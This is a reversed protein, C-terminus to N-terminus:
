YRPAYRDSLAPAYKAHMMGADNGYTNAVDLSRHVKEAGKLSDDIMMRRFDAAMRKNGNFRKLAEASTPVRLHYNTARLTALQELVLESIKM